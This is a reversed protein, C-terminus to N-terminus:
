EDTYGEQLEPVSDKYDANGEYINHAALNRNPEPPMRGGGIILMNLLHEVMTEPLGARKAYREALRALTEGGIIPATKKEMAEIKCFTENISDCYSLAANAGLIVMMDRTARALKEALEAGYSKVSFAKRVRRRNARCEAVWRGFRADYYCGSCEPKPAALDKAVSTINAARLDYRNGNVYGCRVGYLLVSMLRYKRPRTRKGGEAFMYPGREHSYWRIPAVKPLHNRDLYVTRKSRRIMLKITAGKAYIPNPIGQILEWEPNKDFTLPLFSPSDSGIHIDSHRM